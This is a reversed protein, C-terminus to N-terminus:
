CVGPITEICKNVFHNVFGHHAQAFIKIRIDHAYLFASVMIQDTCIVSIKQQIKFTMGNGYNM